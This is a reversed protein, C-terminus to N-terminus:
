GDGVLLPVLYVVFLVEVDCFCKECFFFVYEVFVVSAVASEPSEGFHEVVAVEDVGVECAGLNEVLHLGVESCEDGFVGGSEFDVREQCAFAPSDFFFVDHWAVACGFEDLGDHLLQWACESDRPWCEFFVWVASFGVCEDGEDWLVVLVAVGGLVEHVEVPAVM